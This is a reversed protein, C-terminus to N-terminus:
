LGNAALIDKARPDNPNAKAWAVAQQDEPTPQAKRGSMDQSTVGGRERYKEVLDPKFGAETNKLHAALITKYSKLAKILEPESNFKGSAFETKLRELEPVTVAAGSRDRLELNFVKSAATNLERADRNYFSVRGVGPLSVGPLDVKKGNVSGNTDDYDDIKFGLTSEINNMAAVLPQPDGLRKALEQISKENQQEAKQDLKDQQLAARDAKSDERTRRGEDVKYVVESTDLLDKLRSAPLMRLRKEDMKPNLKLVADQYSRSVASSPNGMEADNAADKKKKAADDFEALADKKKNGAASAASQAFNSRGGGRANVADGVGALITSLIGWKKNKDLSASLKERDSPGAPTPPVAEFPASEVAKPPALPTQMPKRAPPPPLDIGPMTPPKPMDAPPPTKLLADTLSPRKIDDLSLKFGGDAPPTAVPMPSRATATSNSAGVDFSSTPMAPPMMNFLEPNKKKLFELIEPNIAM